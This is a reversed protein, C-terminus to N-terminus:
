MFKKRLTIFTLETRVFELSLHSTSVYITKYKYGHLHYGHLNTSRPSFKKGRLFCKNRLSFTLFIIFRAIQNLLLSRSGHFDLEASPFLKFYLTQCKELFKNLEARKAEESPECYQVMDIVKNLKIEKGETPKVTLLVIGTILICLAVFTFVLVLRCYKGSIRPRDHENPVPTYTQQEM